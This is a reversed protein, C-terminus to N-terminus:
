GILANISYFQKQNRKWYDVLEIASDKKSLYDIDDFEGMECPLATDLNGSLFHAPTLTFGSPFDGHVYTLPCTNVIAEVEVLM